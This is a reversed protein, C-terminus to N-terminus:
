PLEGAYYGFLLGVGHHYASIDVVVGRGSGGRLLHVGVGHQVDMLGAGSHGDYDGGSVVVAAGFQLYVAAEPLVEAQVDHSVDFTRGLFHIQVLVDDLYFVSLFCFAVDNGHGVDIRLVEGQQVSFCRAVLPLGAEELRRKALTSLGMTQKCGWHCFVIVGDANLKKAWAIANDIRRTSRGGNVNALLRRAMSEFPKDPDLPMLSDFTIDCGVLECRNETELMRIMSDQWNPLTHIFFIRKRRTTERRPARKATEILERVYNEGDAHGLLCHTAILSCLEGTMTTDQSVEARLDAYERMLALTRNACAMSERLKAEDLKRGTLTELTRALERLQDAVYAVATDDERAPVDILTLPAPYHAALHRFSLQNADCALTTGAILLPKPLVGSEAMGIMTKHYSCFSEPIGSTEAREAFVHQCATCAVYVSLGEPFMPTLGMAHMLECPMFINVMVAHQPQNMGRILTDAVRGNMRAYASKADTLKQRKGSFRVWSYAATLMRRARRPHPAVQSAILRGLTEIYSQM